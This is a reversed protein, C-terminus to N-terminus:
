ARSCVVLVHLVTGDESLVPTAQGAPVDRLIPRLQPPLQSSRTLNSRTVAADLDKGLKVAERCSRIAETRATFDKVSVQSSKVRLQVLDYVPATSVWVGEAQAFTSTPALAAAIVAVASLSRSMM